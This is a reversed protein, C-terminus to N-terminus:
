PYPILRRLLGASSAGICGCAPMSPSLLDALQVLRSVWHPASPRCVTFTVTPRSAEPLTVERNNSRM